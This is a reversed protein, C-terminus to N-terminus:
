NYICNTTTNEQKNHKKNQKTRGIEGITKYKSLSEKWYILNSVVFENQKTEVNSEIPKQM